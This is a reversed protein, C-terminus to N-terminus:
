YKPRFSIQSCFHMGNVLLEGQKFGGKISKLFTFVTGFAKFTNARKTVAGGRSLSM